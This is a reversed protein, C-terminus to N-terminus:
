THKSEARNAGPLLYGAVVICNSPARAKNPRKYKVEGPESLVDFGASNFASVSLFLAEWVAQGAPYTFYLRGFLAIAGVVQIATAAIVIGISIRVLSGMQNILLIERVILRERINVRQGILVLFFTALSMFGLGGIYILALIIAQGTRTWYVASNEVVLGTVTVASTATFLATTIPTIGGGHHTYPPLLLLTGLLILGLFAYLIMFPTASFRSPPKRIEAVVHVPTLEDQRPRRVVRDAPRPIWDRNM